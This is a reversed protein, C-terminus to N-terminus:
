AEAVAPKTRIRKRMKPRKGKDKGKSQDWINERWIDWPQGWWTMQGWTLYWKKLSSKWSGKLWHNEVPPSRTGWPVNPLTQICNQWLQPPLTISDADLPYLRSIDSFIRCHVHCCGVWCLSPFGWLLGRELVQWQRPQLTKSGWWM